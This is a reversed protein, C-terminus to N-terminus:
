EHNPEEKTLIEVLEDIDDKSRKETVALMLTHDDIKVGALYGYEAALGILEDVDAPDNILINDYGIGTLKETLESLARASEAFFTIEKYKM